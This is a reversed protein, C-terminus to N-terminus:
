QFKEVNKFTQLRLIVFFIFVRRFTFFNLRTARALSSLNTLLALSPYCAVRTNSFRKPIKSKYEYPALMLPSFFCEYLTSKKNRSSPTAGTASSSPNSGGHGHLCVTKLVAENHGSRYDESHFSPSQKTTFGFLRESHFSFSYKTAFGFLRESRLSSSKKIRLM